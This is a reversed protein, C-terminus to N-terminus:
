RSYPVKFVFVAMVGLSPSLCSRWPSKPQFSRPSLLQSDNIAMGGIKAKAQHVTSVHYKKFSLHVFLWYVSTLRSNMIKMGLAEEKLKNKANPSSLFFGLSGQQAESWTSPLLPQISGAGRGLRGGRSEQRGAEQQSLDRVGSTERQGRPPSQPPRKCNWSVM